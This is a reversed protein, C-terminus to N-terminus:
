LLRGLWTLGQYTAVAAVWALATMYFFTFVSWWKNTERAIVALTAGCQMCLAFFVMVAWVAPMTFIPEGIRPGDQWKQAAMKERLSPSSEDAADGLGYIIGLTSVIVERAPFSSIVGVTLKWDMGAPDFVPQVLKGFRGLWSQEIYAASLRKEFQGGLAADGSELQSAIAAPAEGQAAATESVFQATVRERVADPRPFYLLAWIIVSILLIISGAQKIFERAKLWVHWLVGKFQPVRYPPMELLFHSDTQKPLLRKLLVAVPIAVILGFLHVFFLAAGAWGPGYRPEVFAGILLVYVPLRASCSMLPSVLITILRTTPDQITRAAMIGPVACAYCSLMPVFSKGSLGTWSLVRDMLFAARALYGSDELVGLFFFLLAIQPLFVLVSGVGSIVGDVIFSQLVPVSELWGGVTAGIAGFSWDIVDMMPSAWSYLSEFVLYMLAFFVVLGWVRHTLLGDISETGRVGSRKLQLDLGAVAADIRQYLILAEAPLPNWGGKRVTNRADELLAHASEPPLGVFRYAKTNTDFLFRRAQGPSLAVNSTSRIRDQVLRTAEEVPAPWNVSPAPARQALRAEIALLLEPIGLGRRAVTPVVPVGLRRSLDDADIEVGLNRAEDVLNLAVVIPIGLDMVQHVLLLNRRINSADVVCVVLAPHDEWAVFGTLADAAIQEDPATASLSYCGPLDVLHVRTSNLHLLGLKREVTTGPYNGVRHRLGTLGNFLTTKGVNPNGILAVSVARAEAVIPMTDHCASM